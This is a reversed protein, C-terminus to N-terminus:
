RKLEYDILQIIGRAKEMLVKTEQNSVMCLSARQHLTNLFYMNSLLSQYDSKIIPNEPMAELSINNFRVQITSYTKIMENWSIYKALLDQYKERYLKDHNLEDEIMDAVDGPWEILSKRLNQYKILNIKGSTLLVELSGAKNNFTPGFLTKCLLSDIYQNPYRDLNVVNIATIDRASSIIDNRLSNLYEFENIAKQFDERLNNLITKEEIRDLRIQNWENVQLALLIGIM